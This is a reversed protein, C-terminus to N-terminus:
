RRCSVCGFRTGASGAAASCASIPICSRGQDLVGGILWGILVNGFSTGIAQFLPLQRRVTGIVELLITDGLTASIAQFFPLQRRVTGVVELLIADREAGVALHATRTYRFAPGITQHL